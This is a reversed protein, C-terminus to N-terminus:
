SGEMAALVDAYRQREAADKFRLYHLKPTRERLPPVGRCPDSRGLVVLPGHPHPTSAAELLAAPDHADVEVVRAGFTQLREALPELTMVDDMRGDCQYGNVDVVVSLDRLGHFTAAALAEWTQGEQFEGDSMFVWVKGADGRLQRALAVGGAVSLAQALSGATTEIGPSHEAGIMEVTSGDANFDALADPSLRGVEVLTAYLVLAYHVPSFFFRDTRPTWPGNYAGGQWARLGPGPVGGFPPPVPPAEPPDLRLLATYLTALLEASSCAQSLYGEGNRLVHDLVRRRIAQAVARARSVTLPSPRSM